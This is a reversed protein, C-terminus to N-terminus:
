EELDNKNISRNITKKKRGQIEGNRVTVSILRYGNDTRIFKFHDQLLDSKIKHNIILDMVPYKESIAEGCNNYYQSFEEGEFIYSNLGDITIFYDSEVKNLELLKVKILNFNRKLFDRKLEATWGNTKEWYTISDFSVKILKDLTLSNTLETNIWNRFEMEFDIFSYYKGNNSKFSQRNPSDNQKTSIILSFLNLNGKYQFNEIVVENKTNILLEKGNVLSYHNCGSENHTDWYKKEAGKLARILGNNVRSLGNYVAPIVIDGNKDFMGVKDTEKDRFRIFGESECDVGNDYLHLSDRGVKKGPKTLYYSKFEGDIVEMVAIINEFKIASTLGMFKPEIEVLGKSNKFGKLESNESRFAIWTDTNQAKVSFGIIFIIWKLVSIKM